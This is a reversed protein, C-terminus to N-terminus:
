LMTAYNKGFDGAEIQCDHKRCVLDFEENILDIQNKTFPEETTSSILIFYRLRNVSGGLSASITGRSEELLVSELMTRCEQLALLAWNMLERDPNKLYREIIRYSRVTPSHALLILVRKKSQIIANELFLTRSEAIVEKSTFADFKLAKSINFYEKQVNSDIEGEMVNLHEPLNELMEQIQEKKFDKLKEAKRSHFSLLEVRKEVSIVLGTSQYGIAPFRGLLGM